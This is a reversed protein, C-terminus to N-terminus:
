WCEIKGRIDQSYIMDCIREYQQAMDIGGKKRLGMATIKNWAYNSLASAAKASGRGKFGLKRALQWGRNTYHADIFAQVEQEDDLNIEIKFKM